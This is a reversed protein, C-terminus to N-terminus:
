SPPTPPDPPGAQDGLRILPYGALLSAGVAMLPFNPAGNEVFQYAVQSLICLAGTGIIVVDHSM